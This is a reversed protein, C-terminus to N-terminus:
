RVLEDLLFTEYRNLDMIEIGVFQKCESDSFCFNIGMSPMKMRIPRETMRFLYGFKVRQYIKESGELGRLQDALDGFFEIGVIREEEDIDM